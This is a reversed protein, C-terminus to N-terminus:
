PLEAVYRIWPDEEPRDMPRHVAYWQHVLRMVEDVPQGLLAGCVYIRHGERPDIILYERTGLRHKPGVAAVERWSLTRRRYTTWVVIGTPDVRLVVWRRLGGVLAVTVHVALFVVPALFLWRSPGDVPLRRSSMRPGWTAVTPALLWAALGALAVAAPGANSRLARGPTM